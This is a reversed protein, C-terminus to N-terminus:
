QNEGKAGGANVTGKLIALSGDVEGTGSVSSNFGTVQDELVGTDKGNVKGIHDTAFGSVNFDTGAGNDFSLQFIEYQQKGNSVVDSSGTGFFDSVDTDTGGDRVMFSPSGGGAPVVILLKASKSFGFASSSANLANIIDKNTIRVPRATSSDGSFGSLAVNLTSVVVPTQAYSQAIGVALLAGIVAIQATKKMKRGEQVTGLDIHAFSDEDPQSREKNTKNKGNARLGEGVLLATAV